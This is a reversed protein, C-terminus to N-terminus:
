FETPLNSRGFYHDVLGKCIQSTLIIGETLKPNIKKCSEIDVQDLESEELKWNEFNHENEARLLCFWEQQQANLIKIEILGRSELYFNYSTNQTTFSFSKKKQLDCTVKAEVMSSAKKNNKPLKATIDFSTPTKNKQFKDETSPDNETFAADINRINVGRKLDAFGLAYFKLLSAFPLAEEIDKQWNLDKRYFINQVRERNVKANSKLNRIKDSSSFVPHLLRYFYDNWSSRSKTETDNAPTRLTIESKDGSSGLNKSPALSCSALAFLVIFFLTKSFVLYPLM